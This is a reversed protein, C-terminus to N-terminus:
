GELHAELGFLKVANATTQRAVDEVSLGSQEAVRQGVLLVYSSENRKGRLPM